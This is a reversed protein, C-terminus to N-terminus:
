AEREATERYKGPTTGTVKKFVRILGIDAAYGVQQAIQTVTLRKDRLLRKAQDVRVKAVYDTLNEGQQKKFFASLYQPTIHFTDAISTLSLNGDGYREEIHTRIAQLLLLSHDSSRSKMYRCLSLFLGSIERHMEEATTCRTLKQIPDFEGPFVETVTLNMGNMIKLLTSVMNFFLCRGMEPTIRRAEFHVAYISRLLRQVGEADGSKVSGMLQVELEIPYHYHHEEGQLDAFRLVTEAGSVIRHDAARAAELFCQPIRAAGQHISSVGLTLQIEFRSRMVHQLAVAAELLEEELRRVLWPPLPPEGSAGKEELGGDKEYPAHLGRDRAERDQAEKEEAEKEEGQKPEAEQRRFNFLVALTSRDLEVTYGHHAGSLLDQCVNSVIFRVLAWQRESADGAFGRIDGIRVFLVAFRDSVFTMHMFRLSEPTLAEPDVEGRLLRQLFNARLVPTQGAITDRLRREEERSVEITERILDYESLEGEGLLRFGGASSRGSSQIVGVLDRIPSYNRYAMRYAALSGGILCLLLLCLSWAKMTQLSELVLDKPLVLVYRWAAQKSHTYTVIQERGDEDKLEFRGADGGLHGLLGQRPAEGEASSLVLEGDNNLIFVSGGGAAAQALMARVPAADLLLVLSGKIDTTEVLPLSQVFTLMRRPGVDSSLVQRAPLYSRYHYSGLVQRRWDDYSMGEMPYIREFFTRADTRSTTTMVTDSAGFYLFVDSILTGTGRYPGLHEKMFEVLRYADEPAESGDNNLLGPLKPNLSIRQSVQEVERLRVDLTQRLQDLLATNAREAQGMMMGEVKSYLVLGITVPLLFILLYSALLTLFLSKRNWVSSPLRILKPIM